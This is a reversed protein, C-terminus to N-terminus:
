EFIVIATANTRGHTISLHIHDVGLSEARQQAKGFLRLQPKGTPANVVVIDRWHIGNNWGTGLAKMCAEKAAFRAALRPTPDAYRLSYTQEEPAYIRNLFREGYKGYVRAIRDLETSDVGLGKIMTHTYWTQM